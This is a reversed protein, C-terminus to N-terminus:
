GISRVGPQRSNERHDKWPPMLAAQAGATWGSIFCEALNGGMLYLYGWLSGAEGAVYLREISEDFVNLVRQDADHAIGGQTNSVVPWVEGVFFPPQVITHMSSAPRGFEQDKGCACAANWRDITSRLTDPETSVHTALEDISHVAKLIGNEVEKLNDGSWSYSPISRDNFATGALPYRQRGVDDVILFAPRATPAQTTPNISELPRAGTDQFYPEYENMFRRGRRDVLIWTMPIRPETVGPTWDPLRKVRIGLPFAPDTHHFGYCGHFHWLHQLSAGFDQSLRIADGTNGLFAASRVKGAQWYQLQLDAAAEFGGCALVVGRRAAIAKPGASGGIWLGRVSGAPSSILRLAPASLRIEIGRRKINEHLVKFLNAGRETGHAHPYEKRVDFGPVSTVQVYALSEFGPFPYTGSRQVWEVQADVSHALAEVYGQIGAMGNAFTRVVDDRATGANTAKVYKYASNADNTCRVGGGSCISIGGPDPMKEVILVRAGRDHAEIATIAGAFGLGVVVVDYSEDFSEVYRNLRLGTRSM